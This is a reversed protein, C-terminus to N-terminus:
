QRTAVGMERFRETAAGPGFDELEYVQRIEIEGDENHPNPFRTSWEVAEDRSKVQIITYGAVLKKAETFPGDIVGRKGGTYQDSAGGTRRHHPSFGDAGPTAM